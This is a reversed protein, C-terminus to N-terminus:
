RASAHHEAVHAVGRGGAHAEGAVGRGAGLLEVALEQLVRLALVDHGADAGRVRDGVELLQHRRGVLLQALDGGAQLPVVLVHLVELEGDLLVGEVHELGAVALPRPEGRHLMATSM